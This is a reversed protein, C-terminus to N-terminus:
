DQEDIKELPMQLGEKSRAPSRASPTYLAPSAVGGIGDEDKTM